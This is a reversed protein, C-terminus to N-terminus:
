RSSRLVDLLDEIQQTITQKDEIRGIRELQQEVWDIKLELDSIQEWRRKLKAKLQRVRERTIPPHYFRMLPDRKVLKRCQKEHFWFSNNDPKTGWNDMKVWLRDNDIECVTGKDETTATTEQCIDYVKVRDGIQYKM